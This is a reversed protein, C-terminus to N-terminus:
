KVIEVWRNKEANFLTDCRNDDFGRRKELPKAYAEVDGNETEVFSIPSQQGFKNQQAQYMMGGLVTPVEIEGTTSVIPWPCQKTLLYIGEHGSIEITFDSSVAKRGMGVIKDFFQKYYSGTSIAM